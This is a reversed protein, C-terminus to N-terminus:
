WTALFEKFYIYGSGAGFRWGQHEVQPSDVETEGSATTNRWRRRACIDTDRTVVPPLQNASRLTLLHNPTLAELDNVDDSVKTVPRSNIISEVECLLTYLSEDSLTQQNMLSFLVKRVTRIQREWIGGHHSGAPPNFTWKISRQLM